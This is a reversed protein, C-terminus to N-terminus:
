EMLTDFRPFRFSVRARVRGVIESSAARPHIARNAGGAPPLTRGSIRFRLTSPFAVRVTVRENSFRPPPAPAVAATTVNASSRGPRAADRVNRRERGIRVGPTSTSAEPGFM